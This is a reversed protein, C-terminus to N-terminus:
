RDFKIGVPGSVAFNHRWILKELHRGYLRFDLKPKLKLSLVRKAIDLDIRVGVKSSIAWDGAWNNSSGIQSFPSGGYWFEIEQKSRSRNITMLITKQMPRNFKFNTAEVTGLLDSFELLPDCSGKWPGKLDLQADTRYCRYQWRYQTCWTFCETEFCVSSLVTKNLRRLM